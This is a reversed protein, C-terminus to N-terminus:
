AAAAAAPAQTKVEVEVPVGLIGAIRAAGHTRQYNGAFAAHARRGAAEILERHGDLHNLLEVLGRVDGCDIQWGCGYREIIRSPTSSKPGVFLVPRGAAMIGYTKSPVVSGLCEPKQTVLGIHGSALRAGLEDRDCYPLFEANSLERDDCFRRLWAHGSGAGAFTFRIQNKLPDAIQGLQAIAGSITEADHAKGFNGSYLVSLPGAPLRLQARRSTEYPPESRDAWNEAIVIKDAAIGHALLRSRMCEGLVILKDARHRPVDALWGFMKAAIGGAKLVGLDVAVDPYVDMEWIIHRSGRLKQIMLGVLSLLPPTTLTVVVDPAKRRMGQWLAGGLFGLYAGMRSGAIRSFATNRVRTISVNAGPGPTSSQVGYGASGCIIEVNEGHAVLYEAVDSLLQGTAATDPWFFQNMVLITMSSKPATRRDRFERSAPHVAMDEHWLAEHSVMSSVMNQLTARVIGRPMRTAAPLCSNTSRM